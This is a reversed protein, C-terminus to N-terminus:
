ITRGLNPDAHASYFRGQDLPVITKGLDAVAAPKRALQGALRAKHARWGGDRETQARGAADSLCALRGPGAFKFLPDAAYPLVRVGGFILPMLTAICAFPLAILSLSDLPFFFSEVWYAGVSLWLMASLAFAFGFMMRDPPFITLHLLVGHAVLAFFLLTPKVSGISARGGAVGAALPTRLRTRWAVAAAGAYLLATFAYLVIDM